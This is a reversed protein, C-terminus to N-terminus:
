PASVGSPRGQQKVVNNDSLQHLGNPVAITRSCSSRQTEFDLTLMAANAGRSFM